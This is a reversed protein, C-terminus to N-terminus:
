RKWAGRIEFELFASGEEAAAYLFAGCKAEVRRVMLGTTRDYETEGCTIERIRLGEPEGDRLAELLGDFAAQLREAGGAGAAWLDLGLRVELRRGYRERWTGTDPELEEGLYEWFAGPEAKCSRISVAAVVSTLRPREELPWSEMAEVGQERLLATMYTRLADLETRESSM